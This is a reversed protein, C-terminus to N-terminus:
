GLHQEKGWGGWGLTSGPGQATFAQTRQVWPVCKPLAIAARTANKSHFGQPSLPLGHSLGLTTLKPVPPHCCATGSGGCEGGKHVGIGLIQTPGQEKCTYKGYKGHKYDM